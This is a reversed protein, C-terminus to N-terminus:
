FRSCRGSSCCSRPRPPWPRPWSVWRRPGRAGRGAAVDGDAGAVRTGGLATAARQLRRELDADASRGGLWVAAGAAAFLVVGAAALLLPSM